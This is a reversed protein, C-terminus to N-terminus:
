CNTARPSSTSSTGAVNAERIRTRTVLRDLLFSGFSAWEIAMAARRAGVRRKPPRITCRSEAAAVALEVVGEVHGRDSLDAVRAGFSPDIEVALNGLALRLLLGQPRELTLDGVGDVAQQKEVGSLLDPLVSPFSEYGRPRSWVRFAPEKAFDSGSGAFAYADTANRSPNIRRPGFRGFNPDQSMSGSQRVWIRRTWGKARGRRGGARAARGRHARRGAPAEDREPGAGKGEGVVATPAWASSRSGFAVRPLQTQRFMLGNTRLRGITSCKGM